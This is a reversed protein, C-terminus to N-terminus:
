RSMKFFAKPMKLWCGGGEELHDGGKMLGISPRLLGSWGGVGDGLTAGCQGDAPATVVVMEGLGIAGTVLM